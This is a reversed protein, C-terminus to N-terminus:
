RDVLGADYECGVARAPETIASSAQDRGLRELRYEHHFVERVAPKFASMEALMDERIAFVMRVGLDSAEVLRGTTQIFRSRAGDSAQLFFEEFQDLFFILLGSREGCAARAAQVVDSSAADVPKSGIIQGLATAIEQLPDAFSRVIFVRHGGANLKPMLGARLLSSKGVGSRGHLIFTRRSLIQSNILEIEQDRGFFLGADQQTYYDLFKYPRARLSGSATLEVSAQDD